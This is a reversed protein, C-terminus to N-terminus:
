QWATTAGFIALNLFFNAWRTFFYNMRYIGCYKRRLERRALTSKAQKEGDGAPRAASTVFSYCDAVIMRGNALM